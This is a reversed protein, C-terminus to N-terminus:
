STAWSRQYPEYPICPIYNGPIHDYALGQTAGLESTCYGSIILWKMQEFFTEGFIKRRVKNLFPHPLVWEKEFHQLIAIRSESTCRSFPNSFKKVSYKELNELGNIIVIKDSDSTCNDFVNVIYDAVKAEKAGPTDTSPIITESLEEILEKFSYLSRIDRKVSNRKKISFFYTLFFSILITVFLFLAKRRTIM